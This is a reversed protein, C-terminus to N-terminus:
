SKVVGSLRNNSDYSLTLTAVTSSALKYVATEIEGVGNGAAVYTLVIEDFATPVLSGAMRLDINSLTSNVAQLEAYSSSTNSDISALNSNATQLETVTSSTSSDVNALTSNATQLETM